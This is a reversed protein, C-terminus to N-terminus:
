RGIAEETQLRLILNLIALIGAQAEPTIVFGTLGQVVIVLVAIINVWLTKSRWWEKTM